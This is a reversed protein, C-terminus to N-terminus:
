VSSTNIVIWNPNNSSIDKKFTWSDNFENIEQKNGELINGTHDTIFNIQKSIFRITIFANSDVISASEIEAKDISILNSNLTKEELNRQEIALKFGDYIKESLLNKLTPLDAGAFAKIIMQFCFKAGNIFFEASIKNSSLINKLTVKLEDNLNALIKSDAESIAEESKVSTNTVDKMESTECSNKEARKEAIHKKEDESIKGLQERLKFFIYFAVTAFFLIDM